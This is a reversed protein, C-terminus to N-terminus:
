MCARYIYHRLCIHGNSYIHPHVPISSGIFIVEPSEHPYSDPFRFQLTFKEGTYLSNPPGDINVAWLQMNSPQQVNIGEIKKNVM